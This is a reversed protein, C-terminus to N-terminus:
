SKEIQMIVFDCSKDSSGSIKDDGVVHRANAVTRKQMAWGQLGDGDGVRHGTNAVPRKTTAFEQMGNGDGVGHGANAVTRKIIAWGQMGDNDRVFCVVPQFDIQLVIRWFDFESVLM